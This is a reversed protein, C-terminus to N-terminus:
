KEASRFGRNRLAGIVEDIESSKVFLYDYSFTSIVLVSAGTSAISTCAAALFGPAAFPLSVKLRIARLPGYSPLGTPLAEEVTVISTHESQDNFVGTIGSHGEGVRVDGQLMAYETPIVVFPSDEIARELDQQTFETSNTTQNM